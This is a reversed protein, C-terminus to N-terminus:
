KNWFVKEDTVYSVFKKKYKKFDYFLFIDRIIFDMAENYSKFVTNEDKLGRERSGFVHFLIDSDLKQQMETYFNRSKPINTIKYISYRKRVKKLLKTKM